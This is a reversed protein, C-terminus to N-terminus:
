ILKFMMFMTLIITETKLIGGKLLGLKWGVLQQREQHPIVSPMSKKTSTELLHNCSVNFDSKMASWQSGNWVALNNVPIDGILSFKGAVITSDGHQLMAYVAGNTGPISGLSTWQIVPNAFAFSELLLGLLISLLKM